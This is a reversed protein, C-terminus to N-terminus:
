GRLIRGWYYIKGSPTKVGRDRSNQPQGMQIDLINDEYLIYLIENIENDSLNLRRNLGSFYIETSFLAGLKEEARSDFQFEKLLQIKDKRSLKQKTSTHPTQPSQINIKNFKSSLSEVRSEVTKLSSSLDRITATLSKLERNSTSLLSKLSENASAAQAVVSRGFDTLAFHNPSAPLKGTKSKIKHLSVFGMQKLTKFQAATIGSGRTPQTESTNTFKELKKLDVM